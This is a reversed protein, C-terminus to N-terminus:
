NAKSIDDMTAKESVCKLTKKVREPMERRLREAILLDLVEMIQHAEESSETTEYV